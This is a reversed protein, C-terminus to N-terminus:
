PAMEKVTVAELDLNAAAGASVSVSGLHTAFRNLVAPDELNASHRYPFAVARYSGPPVDTIRFSGSLDSRRIIVAPLAPANAILYIWCASPTGALKVTGQLSGTQNSVVLTIPSPSSGPSVTLPERMLDTGRSTASRVYWGGSGSANLRYVGPPATILASNDRQQTPRVGFQFPSTVDTDVPELVLNFQIINPPNPATAGTRGGNGGAPTQASSTDVVLEVPIGSLAALHLMAGSVDHDPVTVKSEGYQMGDRSFRTVHLAYTGSPLNLRVAGPELSRMANASFSTGDSAQATVRLGPAEDGAELPLTVIHTRSVGPRLQVEQQEGSGVHILDGSSSSSAAPFTVPLVAEDREFGRPSFQTELVYSGETVPIRFRGHSDTQTQGMIQRRHGQEDFVDRRAMVSIRFLPEGDPAMVTGTLLGEPWVELTLSAPDSDDLGANVATEMQEPNTSFGPKTLRLMAASQGPQEFRFRGESDTLMARDGIQVLARGVPGGTVANLVRGALLDPATRTANTSGAVSGIQALLLSGSGMGRMGCFIAAILLGSFTRTRRCLSEPSLVSRTRITFSQRM